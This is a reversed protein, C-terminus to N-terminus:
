EMINLINLKINSDNSLQINEENELPSFYYKGLKFSNEKQIHCGIIISKCEGKYYEEIWYFACSFSSYTKDKEYISSLTFSLKDLNKYLLFAIGEAELFLYGGLPVNKSLINKIKIQNLEAGISNIINISFFILTAILLNKM